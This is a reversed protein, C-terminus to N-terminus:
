RHNEAEGRNRGSAQVAAEPSSGPPEGDAAGAGEALWALLFTDDVRQSVAWVTVPGPHSRGGVRRGKATLDGVQPGWSGRQKVPVVFGGFRHNCGSPGLLLDTRENFSFSEQSKRRSM